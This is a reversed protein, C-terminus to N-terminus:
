TNNEWDFCLSIIIKFSRIPCSRTHSQQVSAEWHVEGWGARMHYCMMWRWTHWHSWGLPHKHLYSSVSSLLFPHVPPYALFVFHRWRWPVFYAFLCYSSQVKTHKREYGMLGEWKREQRRRRKEWGFFLAPAPCSPILSSSSKHWYNTHKRETNHLFRLAKDPRPHLVINPPKHNNSSPRIIAERCSSALTPPSCIFHKVMIHQMAPNLNEPWLAFFPVHFLHM